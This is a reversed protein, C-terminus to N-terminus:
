KGYQKLIELFEEDMFTGDPLAIEKDGTNGTVEWGGVEENYKGVEKVSADNELQTKGNNKFDENTQADFGNGSGNGSNGTTQQTGGNGTGTGNGGGNGSGTGNGSGNSGTGASGSGNGSGIDSGVTGEEVPTEQKQEELDFAYEQDVKTGSNSDTLSEMYNTMDYVNEGASGDLKGEGEAGDANLQGEVATDEEVPSEIPTEVESITPEVPEKQKSTIALASGIALMAVVITLLIKHKKM